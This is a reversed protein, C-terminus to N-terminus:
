AFGIFPLADLSIRQSIRWSCASPRIHLDPFDDRLRPPLNDLHACCSPREDVREAPKRRSGRAIVRNARDVNIALERRFPERIRQCGTALAADMDLLDKVVVLIRIM